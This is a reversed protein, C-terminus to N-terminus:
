ALQRRRGLLAALYPSIYDNEPSQGEFVPRANANTVYSSLEPATYAQTQYEIPRIDYSSVNDLINNARDLYDQSAAVSDGGAIQARQAELSALEQLLNAKNQNVSRALEERQQERQRAASSRENEYGTMYNNWNTDLMQNNAGFTNGAETRQLTADRAVADPASVRYASGGGAGRAGLLRWLGSLTQGANSGITNKAAVFDQGTSLKNADYATNAQNKGLLLQNLANQYSSDIGSYGSELMNGTRDVAKNLNGIAQDYQGLLNQDVTSGGTYGTSGTSYATSPDSQTSSPAPSIGVDKTTVSSLKSGTKDVPFPSSINFNAVKGTFPNFYKTVDYGGLLNSVYKGINGTPSTYTPM